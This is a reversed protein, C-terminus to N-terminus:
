DFNEVAFLQFDTFEAARAADMCGVTAGHFSDVHAQIVIRPLQDGAQLRFDKLITILEQKSSAENTQGDAFVVTYANFEDIQIRIKETKDDIQVQVNNKSPQESQPPTTRIVKQISFSATLMFFILLLFAVDVMPTIDWEVDEEAEDHGSRISRSARKKTAAKPQLVLTAEPEDSEVSSTLETPSESTFESEVAEADVFTEDDEPEVDGDDIHADDRGSDDNQQKKPVILEFSCSPCRVNRGEFRDHVVISKQCGVCDFRISM